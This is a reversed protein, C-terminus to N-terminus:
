SDLWGVLGCVYVYCMMDLACASRLTVLSATHQIGYDITKNATQKRPKDKETYSSFILLITEVRM